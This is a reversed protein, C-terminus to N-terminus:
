RRKKLPLVLTGQIEPVTKGSATVSGLVRGYARVVDGRLSSGDEGHVIRVLCTAGKACGRKTDVLMVAFGGGTRVDVIEGEVVANKGVKSAPDPGFADYPLPSASELEKAAADLSAVRIVKVKAIRPGRSPASAVVELVREGMQPLEVRVGFRGQADVAVSQGDVHVSTGPRSQGAVAASNRDTVLERGPADLALSVIAARLTLQGPQPAGDKPTIVFPITREFTKAEGVGDTEKSLDIAYAGRGTADLVLPKDDVKADSGAIAEVRVTLAPPRASLTTLDARVRYVVPVHVTVDEDRGGGPRDIRIVLANDGMSLPAPLALTAAAAAVNASSAGLVLSTGDPCSPCAIKLSERGAEDLQPVAELTRGDKRFAVYAGAAGLVAVVGALIAVVALAPVGRKQAISPPAPLPEEILTKPRPVIAPAPPPVVPAMMGLATHKLQSPVRPAPTADQATPAIGPIAVGLMTRHQSRLDVPGPTAAEPLSSMTVGIMTKQVPLLAHANPPAIEPPGLDTAAMGLMTRMAPPGLPSPALEPAQPVDLTTPPEGIAVVPSM